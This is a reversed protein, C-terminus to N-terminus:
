FLDSSRVVQVDYGSKLLLNESLGFLTNPRHRRMNDIVILRHHESGIDLRLEKCSLRPIKSLGAVRYAKVFCLEFSHFTESAWAALHDIVPKPSLISLIM